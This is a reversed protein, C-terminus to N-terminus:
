YSAYFVDARAEPGGDRVGGRPRVSIRTQDIGRSILYTRVAMGRRLALRLGAGSKGNRAGGYAVIELAAHNARLTKVLRDLQAQAASTLADQKDEFLIHGHIPMRNLPGGVGEKGAAAAHASSVLPLGGNRWSAADAPAGHDTGSLGGPRVAAHIASPVSVSHGVELVEPEPTKSFAPKTHGPFKLAGDPFTLPGWALGPYSIEKLAPTLRLEASPIEIKLKRFPAASYETADGATSQPTVAAAGAALAPAPVSHTMPAHAAGAQGFILASAAAFGFGASKMRFGKRTKGM